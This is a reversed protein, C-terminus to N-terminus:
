SVTSYTELLSTQYLIHESVKGYAEASDMTSHCVDRVARKVLRTDHELGRRVDGCSNCATDALHILATQGRAPVKCEAEEGAAGAM